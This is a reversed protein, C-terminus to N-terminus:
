ETYRLQASLSAHFRINARSAHKTAAKRYQIYREQWYAFRDSVHDLVFLSVENSSSM